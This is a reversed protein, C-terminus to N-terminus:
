CYARQIDGKIVHAFLNMLSLKIAVENYISSLKKSFVNENFRRKFISYRTEVIWRRGYSKSEKWRTNDELYERLNILRLLRSRIDGRVDEDKVVKIKEEGSKIMANVRDLDGTKRPKIVADIKDRELMGYIKKDDYGSDMLVKKIRGHQKAGEILGPLEKNDRGEEFSVSFDVVEKTETNVAINLKIFKKRKGRHKSIRYEGRLTTKLGSSDIALEQEGQEGYVKLECCLREFRISLTTYDPAKDRRTFMIVKRAIGELSRYDIGFLSKIQGCFHIFSFPYKYPAGVKDENILSLEEDWNNFMDFDFLLEGRKVLKENYANWNIIYKYEKKERKIEGSCEEKSKIKRIHRYIAERTLQYERAIQSATKGKKLLKEVEQTTIIAM